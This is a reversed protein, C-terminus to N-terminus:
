RRACTRAESCARAPRGRALAAVLASTTVHAVALNRLAAASRWAAVATLLLLLPEAIGRVYLNM